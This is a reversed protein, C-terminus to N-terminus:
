HSASEEAQLKALLDAYAQRDLPFEIVQGTHSSLTMANAIELSHLASVADANVATGNVVAQYFNRHVDRHSGELHPDLEVTEEVLDANQFSKESVKIYEIMDAGFSKFKFVGQPVQLHGQTGIIEFRMDQGAEATSAHISGLAGNEWELMAQVTDEVAFDHGITRTWAYLRQPMGVLHCILDIEHPLQNMLLAGGESNWGGRWGRYYYNPRVWAIKLDVHQIKGLRGEEILKKAAVIEPRLRYQFNVALIRGTEKAVAIMRDAEAVQIALPKECLVHVGARLAYIAMDPHFLHPVMIVFVDPKVEDLMAQYDLFYPCDWAEAELRAPEEQTDCVGVVEIVDLPLGRKHMRYAVAGVGAFAYRLKPSTM